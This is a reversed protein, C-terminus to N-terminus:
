SETTMTHLESYTRKKGLKERLIDSCLSRHRHTYTKTHIHTYILTYTHIHIHTHTCLSVGRTGDGTNLIAEKTNKVTNVQSDSM